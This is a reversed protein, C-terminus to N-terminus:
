STADIGSWQESQAWLTAALKDDSGYPHPQKPAAKDWYLGSQGQAEPSTACHLTTEAGQENSLMFRKLVWRVPAPVGRWIDTAVVGPHLSYVDIDDYRRALERSFLVNCLKSVCYEPWGSVSRTPRQLHEWIIGATRTHARSAVNVVRPSRACRLRDILAMTWVFHGLHNVGFQIEFGDKTVGRRGAVGANNVLVDIPADRRALLEVTASRVQSLDSLDLHLFEVNAAPNDQVIRDIAAAARAESRCALTVLAGKRAIERAAVEGIGTNAGTVVVWQGECSLETM